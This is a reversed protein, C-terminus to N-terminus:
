MVSCRGLITQKSDKYISHEKVTGKITLEEDKEVDAFRGTCFTTLNNGAEDKMKVIYSTGYMTEYPTNSIIKVKLGSIKEGVTGVYESPTVGEKQKLMDMAKAYAVPMSAIYGFHRHSCFGNNALVRLNELYDSGKQTKAWEVIKKAEAYDDKTPIPKNQLNRDYIASSVLYSTPTIGMEDAKAKSIYGSTKIIALAMAVVDDVKLDNNNSGGGHGGSEEDYDHNAEADSLFSGLSELNNLYFDLDDTGLFDKVCSRGVEKLKGEPTELIISNKKVRATNCHECFLPKSRYKSLDHEDGVSRIINENGLREISAVFKYGNVVPTAGKVKADVVDIYRDFEVPDLKRALVKRASGPIFDLEIEPLNHVKAKKNISSIKKTLRQLDSAKITIVKNMINSNSLKSVKTKPSSFIDSLKKGKLNGGVIMGDKGILVHRGHITVWHDEKDELLFSIFERYTKM